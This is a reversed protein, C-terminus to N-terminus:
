DDHAEAIWSPIRVQRGRDHDQRVAGSDGAAEAFAPGGAESSSPAVMPRGAATALVVMAGVAGGAGDLSGVQPYEDSVHRVLLALLSRQRDSRPRGDLIDLVDEPLVEAYRRGRLPQVKTGEHRGTSLQGIMPRQVIGADVSGTLGEEELDLLRRPAIGATPGRSSRRSQGADGGEVGETGVVHAHRRGEEVHRGTTQAPRDTLGPSSKGDSELGVEDEIPRATGVEKVVSVLGLDCDELGGILLRISGVVRSPVNGRGRLDIGAGAKAEVTTQVVTHSGADAGALCADSLHRGIQEVMPPERANGGGGQGLSSVRGEIGISRPELEALAPRGDPRMGEGERRRVVDVTSSDVDRGAMMGGDELLLDSAELVKNMGIVGHVIEAGGLKTDVLHVLDGDQVYADEVGIAVRGIEKATPFRLIRVVELEYRDVVAVAKAGHAIHAPEMPAPEVPRLQLLWQPVSDITDALIPRAEAVHSKFAVHTHDIMEQIKQKGEETVEGMLSLPAKDKGGRFTLPTVGYGKLFDHINLQQGIVGISGVVAFPAAYLQGPSSMCAIMYGGSAAVTDVVITLKIGEEDRLRGVQQAALGYHAASGGPSGLMVIVEMEDSWNSHIREAVEAVSSTMTSANNSAAAATDRVRQGIKRTARHHSLIFSIQDRITELKSVTTDLNTMDLIIATSNYTAANATKGSGDLRSMFVSEQLQSALTRNAGTSKGGDWAKIMALSDKTYRENLREFTYHQEIQPVYSPNSKFVDKFLARVIAGGPAGGFLTAIALASTKGSGGSGGFSKRLVDLILLIKLLNTMSLAKIKRGGQGDPDTVLSSLVLFVERRFAYLILLVVLQAKHNKIFRGAARGRKFSKSLEKNMKSKGDVNENEDLEDDDSDYESEDDESADSDSDGSGPAVYGPNKQILGDSDDDDGTPLYEEIDSTPVEEVIPDLSSGSRRRSTGTSASSTGVVAFAGVLVLGLSTTLRRMNINAERKVASQDSRHLRPLRPSLQSILQFWRFSKFKYRSYIEIDPFGRLVSQATPPVFCKRYMWHANSVQISIGNM